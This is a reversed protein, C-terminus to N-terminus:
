FDELVFLKPTPASSSPEGAIGFVVNRNTATGLFAASGPAASLDQIRTGGLQADEIIGRVQPTHKLSGSVDLVVIRGPATGVAFCPLYIRDPAESFSENRVFPCHGQTVNLDAIGAIANISRSSGSLTQFDVAIIWPLESENCSNFGPNHYTVVYAVDGDVHPTVATVTGFRSPQLTVYHPAPLVVNPDITSLDTVDLVVLFDNLGEDPFTGPFDFSSEDVECDPPGSEDWDLNECENKYPDFNLGVLLVTRGEFPGVTPTMVAVSRSLDGYASGNGHCAPSVEGSLPPDDIAIERILTVSSANTWDFISVTGERFNAVAYFRSPRGNVITTFVVGGQPMSGSQGTLANTPLDGTNPDFSATMSDILSVLREPEVFPPASTWREGISCFTLIATATVGQRGPKKAHSSTFDGVPLGLTIGLSAPAVPIPAAMEFARVRGPSSISAGSNAYFGRIVCRTGTPCSSGVPAVLEDIVDLALPERDSALVPLNVTRLTYNTYGQASARETAFSIAIALVGAAFRAHISGGLVVSCGKKM